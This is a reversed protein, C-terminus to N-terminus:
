NKPEQNGTVQYGPFVQCFGFRKEVVDQHLLWFTWALGNRLVTMSYINCIVHLIQLSEAVTM